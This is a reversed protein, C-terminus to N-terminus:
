LWKEKNEKKYFNNRLLPGSVLIESIRDSKQRLVQDQNKGM